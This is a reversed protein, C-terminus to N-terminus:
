RAAGPTRLVTFGCSHLAVLVAQADTATAADTAATEAATAADTATDTDVATEPTWASARLATARRLDAHLAPERTALDALWGTTWGEDEWGTLELGAVALPASAGSPLSLRRPAPALREGITRALAGLAAFTAADGPTAEIAHGLPRGAARVTASYVATNLQRVILESETDIYEVFTRWWHRAQPHAGWSEPPLLEGPRGDAATRAAARRLARGWAHGASAGVTVESEGDSLRLEAARCLADLRALDTRAGAALLTGGPQACTVMAVPLQPLAGPLAPALVGVREDGLATVRRLAQELTAPEPLPRARDPDLVQPGFWSRHDARLPRADAVLVAPRDPLVRQDEGEHAPDPLGAVACLLQQAAAAAVLTTLTSPTGPGADPTLGLRATLAAADAAAQGPSGPATVFGGDATTLAAVAISGGPGAPGDSGSPGGPGDALLLLGAPGAALSPEAGARRLARAAAQAFPGAPDAALVRPRAAAIAAAAATPDVAAARLWPSAADSRVVLLDHAHLQDILTNLATRLPSGAPARETLAAHDGTRLAQELLQWLAPLARSGELTVAARWGRLHLGDRLPTVAVGPRLQQGALAAVGDTADDTASAADDDTAGDTAGNETGPEVTTSM